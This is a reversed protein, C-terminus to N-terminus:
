DKKILSRLKELAKEQSDFYIDNDVIDRETDVGYALSSLAERCKVGIVIVYPIRKDPDDLANDIDDGWSYEFESLDILLTEPEWLYIATDMIGKMLAADPAGESGDRYSGTFKVLLVSPAYSKEQKIVEFSYSITPCEQEFSVQYREM